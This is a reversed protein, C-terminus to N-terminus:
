VHVDLACPGSKAEWSRAMVMYLYVTPRVKKYIELTHCQRWYFTCICTCDGITHKSSILHELNNIETLWHSGYLPFFLYALFRRFGDHRHTYICHIPQPLGKQHVKYTCYMHAEFVWHQPLCQKTKECWKNEKVALSASRSSPSGLTLTRRFSWLSPSLLVAVYPRCTSTSHTVSIYDRRMFMLVLLGIQLRSTSEVNTFPLSVITYSPWM